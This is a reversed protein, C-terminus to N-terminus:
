RGPRLTPAGILVRALPANDYSIRLALNMPRGGVSVQPTAGPLEALAFAGSSGSLVGMPEAGIRRIARGISASDPHGRLTARLIVSSSDQGCPTGWLEEIAHAIKPPTVLEGRSCSLFRQGGPLPLVSIRAHRSGRRATLVVGQGLASSSWTAGPLLARELPGVPPEEPLVETAYVEVSASSPSAGLSRALPVLAFAASQGGMPAPAAAAAGAGILLAGSLCLPLARM